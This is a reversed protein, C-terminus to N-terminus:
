ERRMALAVGTSTVAMGIWQALSLRDGFLVMAQLAAVPPVLFLLQSARTVEGHRILLLLLVIAGISIALVSWAMVGWAFPTARFHLDGLFLALPLMGLSAGAYQLVAVTRLDGTRVFAKQYFTGATVSVMALVNIFIPIGAPKEGSEALATLRPALVLCLGLFGLAVGLARVPGMRERLLWPAFVAALIPQLAALLASLSASLGQEVAWWVGGLYFTHLLVGSIGAHLAERGRPWPARALVAMGALLAGAFLFRLLLFLFPDAFDAAYRAVIWGTSWLLVFGAPAVFRILTM